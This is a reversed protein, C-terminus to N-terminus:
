EARKGATLWNRAAQSIKSPNERILQKLVEITIREPQTPGLGFDMVMKNKAEALADEAEAGGAEGIGPEEGMVATGGSMPFAGASMMVGGSGAGQFVLQGGVLEGVPVGTPLLEESSGRVLRWFGWLAILAVLVYVVNKGIDWFMEVQRDKKDALKLEEVQQRNFAVEQLEVKTSDMVLDGQDNPAQMGLASAVIRRLADLEAPTRPVPTRAAGTGTYRTNVLVSATVRKIGGAMQVMNTTAHSIAYETQEDNKRSHNNTTSYAPGNTDTSSNVTVGPVGGPTPTGSDTTETRVNTTRPVIGNTNYYDETKTITDHNIDVSVRVVVENQGLVKELMKEVKKTLYDEQNRQAQLRNSSLAGISNEEENDSLTNGLNDVVGVKNAKLGEVSNAVLLRISAITNAELPRLGHLNVFVSATPSKSPDVLLHTEPEVILVRAAEIGEFKGITRALEGELARMYNARQVFDSLGFSPKDFIEFGVGDNKPMGKAALLARVSYRKDEPVYISTGGNATRYPVKMEELTSVIKGAESLELRGYLLWYDTRGSWLVLAGICALIAGGSAVIIVKQNIGLQSWIKGLQAFLQKFAQM